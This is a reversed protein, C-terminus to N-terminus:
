PKGYAAFAARNTEVFKIWVQLLIKFEATPMQLYEWGDKNLMEFYTTEGKITFGNDVADIIPWPDPSETIEGREIQEIEEIMSQYGDLRGESIVSSFLLGLMGYEPSVPSAHYMMRGDDTIFMVFAVKM